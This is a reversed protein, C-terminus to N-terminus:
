FGNFFAGSILHFFSHNVYQLVKIYGFFFAATPQKKYVLSIQLRYVINVYDLNFILKDM